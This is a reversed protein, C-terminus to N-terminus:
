QYRRSLPSGPYAAAAGPDVPDAPIPDAFLAAEQPRGSPDPHISAEVWETVWGVAM